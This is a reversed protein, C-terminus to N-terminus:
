LSIEILLWDQLGSPTLRAEGVPLVFDVEEDRRRFGLEIARIGEQTSGRMVTYNISWDKHEFSLKKTGQELYAQELIKYDLTTAPLSRILEELEDRLESRYQRPYIEEQPRGQVRAEVEGRLATCIDDPSLRREDWWKTPIALVFEMGGIEYPPSFAMHVVKSRAMVQRNTLPFQIAYRQLHVVNYVEMSNRRSFAEEEPVQGFPRLQEPRFSALWRNFTEMLADNIKVPSQTSSRSSSPSHPM